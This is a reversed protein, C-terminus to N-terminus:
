SPTVGIFIRGEVGGGNGPEADSTDADFGGALAPQGAVTLPASLALDTGASTQLDIGSVALRLRFEGEVDPLAQLLPQDEAPAAALAAGMIADVDLTLGLSTPDDAIPTFRVVDAPLGTVAVTSTTGGVTAVVYATATAPVSIEMNGPADVSLTAQDVLIQIRAADTVDALEFGVRVTESQGNMGVQFVRLGVTQLPAYTGPAQGFLGTTVFASYPLPNGNVLVQDAALTMSGEFAADTAPPDGPNEGGPNEGGPNEGGPQTPPDNVVPDSSGGGCAALALIVATALAANKLKFM